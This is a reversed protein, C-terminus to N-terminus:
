QVIFTRSMQMRPTRIRCIYTGAAVRKHVEDQGDWQATHTGSPLTGLEIQRLIHGYQDCVELYVTTKSVLEFKVTLHGETPNPYISFPVLTNVQEEPHIGALEDYEYHGITSIDWSFVTGDTLHLSMTDNSFSAKRIEQLPYSLQTGDTFSFHVNQGQTSTAAAFVILIALPKKM